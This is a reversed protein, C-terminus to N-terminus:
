GSKKNFFKPKIERLNYMTSIYAVGEWIVTM